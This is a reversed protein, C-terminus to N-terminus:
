EVDIVEWDELNFKITVNYPHVVKCSTGLIALNNGITALLKFTDDEEIYERLTKFETFDYVDSLTIQLNWNNNSQKDGIVRIDANHIVSFLDGSEFSLSENNEGTDFHTQEGYKQIIKNIVKEFYDNGNIIDVIGNNTIFVDSPNEQLSHELFEASYKYGKIRLFIIAGKLVYYQLWQLEDSLYSKKNYYVSFAMNVIFFSIKQITDYEGNMVKQFVSENKKYISNIESAQKLTITDSSPVKTTNRNIANIDKRLIKRYRDYGKIPVENLLQLTLYRDTLLQRQSKLLSKKNCLVLVRKDLENEGKLNKVGDVGVNNCMRKLCSLGFNYQTNSIKRGCLACRKM